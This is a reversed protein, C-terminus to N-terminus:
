QQEFIGLENLSESEFWPNRMNKKFEKTHDPLFADVQTQEQHAPYPERM